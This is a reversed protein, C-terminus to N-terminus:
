VRPALAIEKKNIAVLRHEVSWTSHGVMDGVSWTAMHGVTPRDTVATAPTAATASIDASDAVDM